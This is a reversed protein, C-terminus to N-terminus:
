TKDGKEGYSCFDNDETYGMLEGCDWAMFPCDDTDRLKCDKCRCKVEVFHEKNKFHRCTKSKDEVEGKYAPNPITANRCVDFHICDRCIM